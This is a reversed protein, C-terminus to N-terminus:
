SKPTALVEEIWEEITAWVAPRLVDNHGAHPVILLRKRGRLADFVRQSHIPRTNHDADGHIIFTPATISGAAVVPSAGDVAFGGDREAIKFAEAITGETFFAPAREVAISRLDSFTSAAVVARVRSDGAAAQLAVAAGLSHGILIADTVGAQALVRDLDQREFVGYSCRTGSSAGHARSDYAIVDFGRPLFRAIVGVASVRNDAIGHLYVVTGRPPATAACRWGSLTVDVGAFTAETCGAPPPASRTQRSPYLLAGAGIGPLQSMIVIGAVVVGILILTGCAIAIRSPKTM